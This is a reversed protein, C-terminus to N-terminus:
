VDGHAGEVITCQGCRPTEHEKCCCPVFSGLSGGGAGPLFAKTSEM